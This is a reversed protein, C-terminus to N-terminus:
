DGLDTRNFAEREFVNDLYPNRGRIAEWLSSLLYLPIMFPGWREYQKVHVHEHDRSMDLCAQDRGWIVHGFTIAAGSGVWPLGHSLLRTAIGGHIELVGRVMRFRTDQFLAIPAITLGILTAPSAWVYLLPRYWRM